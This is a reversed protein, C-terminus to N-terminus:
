LGLADRQGKLRDVGNVIEIMNIVDIEVLTEGNVVYKYYTLAVAIKMATEDGAKATGMDIERCRGRMTIEVAEVKGDGADAQMAGRFRLQTGSADFIGFQNIIAKSYERLTFETELKEMGQDIEVPANMGGGRFEEMKRVLKPVVVESVRGAYGEGEVFLNFNKQSKPLAM